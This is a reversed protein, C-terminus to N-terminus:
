NGSRIILRMDNGKQYIKVPSSWAEASHQIENHSGEQIINFRLQSGTLYQSVYNYNGNQLLSMEIEAGKVEGHYQNGAGHQRIKVQAKDGPQWSYIQNYYGTQLIVSSGSQLQQTMHHSNTRAPEGPDAIGKIFIQQHLTEDNDAQSFVWQSFTLCIIILFIIQNLKM